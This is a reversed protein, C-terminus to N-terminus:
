DAPLASDSYLITLTLQDAVGTAELGNRRQFQKVREVCTDNYSSSLEAGERFYGLEQLRNKM